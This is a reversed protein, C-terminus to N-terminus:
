MIYNSWLHVFERGTPSYDIDMRVVCDMYSHIELIVFPVSCTALPSSVSSYLISAKPHVDYLASVEYGLFNLSAAVLYCGWSLGLVLDM